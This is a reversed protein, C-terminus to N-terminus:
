KGEQRLDIEWVERNAAMFGIEDMVGDISGGPADLFIPNSLGNGGPRKRGLDEDSFHGYDSAEAGV